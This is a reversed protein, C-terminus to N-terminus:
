DARQGLKRYLTKRDFGLIRAAMTKNGGVAELVRAIYRREVVEMPVLESPDHGAVVLHESRYDRIREPLDEVVIEEHQTLALAREICNQLERVNGPWTYSALAEAAGRSVGLVKKGTRGALREVFHQALLLVDGGRARLPPLELGVVDLRFLLDSRFRGEEVAAELDRNTAALIRADVELEANSGLPRVRREELARLLKPQLAPTLDGVEDLFLTGGAAELLLGRRDTRAGTFAGRVHGFLESELLEGPLAACNVAVFPGASRASQRHLLRAVVEKGTGSEGTLLVAADSAALRAIVSRLQRMPASEGLLETAGEAEAVRERLRKVEERLRGQEIARSLRLVLEEIEFPKPVFDHAGSRIAGIATELSGFATIVIVPVDPRNAAIRACLDLGDLEGMQIDTVVADLAGATVLDLAESPSTRWVVDFGRRELRDHLLECMGRDDDVVLVRGRRDPELRSFSGSAAATVRSATSM